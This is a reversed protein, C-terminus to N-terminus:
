LNNLEQAKRLNSVADIFPQERMAVIKECIYKILDAELQKFKYSSETSEPDQCKFNNLLGQDQAYVRLQEEQIAHMIKKQAESDTAADSYSAVKSTTNGAVWRAQAMSVWTQPQPKVKITPVQVSSVYTAGGVNARTQTVSSSSFSELGTVGTFEESTSVLLIRCELPLDFPSRVRTGDLLWAAEFQKGIKSSVEDLIELM